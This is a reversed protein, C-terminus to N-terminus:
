QVDEFMDALVSYVQMSKSETSEKSNMIDMIRDHAFEVTHVDDIAQSADGNHNLSLQKVRQLENM